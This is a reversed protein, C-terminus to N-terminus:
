GAFRPRHPSRTWPTRPRGPRAHDGGGAGNVGLVRRGRLARDRGRGRLALPPFPPEEGEPHRPDPEDREPSPRLDLPHGVLGGRATRPPRGPGRLPQVPVGDAGVHIPDRDPREAPPLPHAGPAHGPGPVPVRDRGRQLSARSRPRRSGHTPSACSGMLGLFACIVMVGIRPDAGVGPVAGAGPPGAVGPRRLLVFYFYGVAVAAGILYKPQRLRRIRHSVLNLLSTFRLYLLAGIM